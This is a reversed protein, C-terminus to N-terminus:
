SAAEEQLLRLYVDELRPEEVGVAHINAGAAVLHRVVDPADLGGDVTLGPGEALVGTAGAAELRPVLAAADGDLTVRLRRGFFRARLAGPTDLAVMRTRLVAVRGALREAEDLNHTSVLVARGEDRLGAITDRVDRATAPDLGSTPEDLLVIAPDHLLARALAVRQRLGKSLEAAPDGARDRLGFRELAADAAAAPDALGHLRAHVLLNTRVSLRDWLGPHETLLGTRRRTEAPSGADGGVRVHGATPAILGALMRLTTTKGAGNPGLLAFIEGPALEFSVDDVALRAGFRRTLHSAQLM